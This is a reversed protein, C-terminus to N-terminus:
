ASVIHQHLRRRGKVAQDDHLIDAMFGMQKGRYDQPHAGRVDNKFNHLQRELYWDSMGAARPANMAQIGM